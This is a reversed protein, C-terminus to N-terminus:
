LSKEISSKNAIIYNGFFDTLSKKNKGETEYLFM